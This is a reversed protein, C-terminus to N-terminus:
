KKNEDNAILAEVMKYNDYAAKLAPYQEMKEFNPQLICLREMIVDLTECVKISEKGDRHIILDNNVTVTPNSINSYSYSPALVSGPVFGTDSLIITQCDQSFSSADIVIDDPLM